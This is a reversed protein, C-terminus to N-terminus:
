RTIRPIRLRRPLTCMGLPLFRAESARAAANGKELTFTTGHRRQSKERVPRTTMVVIDNFIQVTLDWHEAVSYGGVYAPEFLALVLVRPDDLVFRSELTVPVYQGRGVRRLWGQHTWRALAKAAGSRDM